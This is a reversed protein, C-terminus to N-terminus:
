SLDTQGISPARFLVIVPLLQWLINVREEGSHLINYLGSRAKKKSVNVPFVLTRVFAVLSINSRWCNSVIFDSVVVSRERTPLEPLKGGAPSNTQPKPTGIHRCAVADYFSVVATNFPNCSPRPARNLFWHVPVVDCGFIICWRQSCRGVPNVSVLNPYPIDVWHGCWRGWCLVSVTQAFRYPNFRTTISVRGLELFSCHCLPDARLGNNDVADRALHLVHSRLCISDRRASCIIFSWIVSFIDCHRTSLCCLISFGWFGVQSPACAPPQWRSRAQATILSWPPTYLIRSLTFTVVASASIAIRTCSQASLSARVWKCLRPGRRCLLQANRLTATKTQTLWIGAHM